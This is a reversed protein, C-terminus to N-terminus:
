FARIPRIYDSSGDIGDKKGGGAASNAFNIFM